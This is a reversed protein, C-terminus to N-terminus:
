CSDVELDLRSLFGLRSGSGPSSIMPIYKELTLGFDPGLCDDYAWIKNTSGASFGRLPYDNLLEDTDLIQEYFIVDAPPKGLYAGATPDESYVKM